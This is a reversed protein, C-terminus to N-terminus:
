YSPQIIVAVGVRFNLPTETSETRQGTKKASKTRNLLTSLLFGQKNFVLKHQQSSYVKTKVKEIKFSAM